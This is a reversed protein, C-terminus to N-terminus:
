SITIFLSFLFGIISGLITFVMYLCLKWWVKQQYLQMAEVSFTSFTTFAGFFGIGILLYLSDEYAGLPIRGYHLGFFCGLGVSGFVNVLLMAVPFPPNPFRKMIAEGILYRCVAGLAGGIALLILKM